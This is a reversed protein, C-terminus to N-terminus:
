QSKIKRGVCFPLFWRFIQHIRANDQVYCCLECDCQQGLSALGEHTVVQKRFNRYSSKNWIEHFSDKRLNGMPINCPKCPLITGDVTVRSHVWGMYCPPTWEIERVSRYRALLHSINHNISLSRLRKKIQELSLSLLREEEQSLSYSSLIGLTTLFPAFTITDCGTELALDVMTAIQQFNHRNIPHHLNVSPLKSQKEAKLSRLLKLGNIVRQFNNPDTGPCQKEYEQLSSAWLSVMLVDLGSDIISQVRSKDLLTGNSIVTIYFGSRKAMSILDFIRSYLFPEGEGLLFLTRTGMARLEKCLKELIDFSIDLVSEEGLSSRHVQQSHFRCGLCRLNCRRTVDVMVHFPGTYAIEGSLLGRMLDIKQRFTAM